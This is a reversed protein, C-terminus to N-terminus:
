ASYYPKAHNQTMNQKTRRNENAISLKHHIRRCRGSRRNKTGDRGVHAARASSSANKPIKPSARFRATQNRTAGGYYTDAFAGPQAKPRGQNERSFRQTRYLHAM